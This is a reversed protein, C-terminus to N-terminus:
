FPQNVTMKDIEVDGMLAALNKLKSKVIGEKYMKIADYERMYAPYESQRELINKPRSFFGVRVLDSIIGAVDKSTM